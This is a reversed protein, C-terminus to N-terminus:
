RPRAYYGTRGQNHRINKCARQPSSPPALKEATTVKIYRSLGLQSGYGPDRRLRCARILACGALSM